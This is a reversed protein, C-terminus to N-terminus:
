RATADQRSGHQLLTAQHRPRATAAFLADVAAEPTHHGTWGYSGLHVFVSDFHQGLRLLKENM